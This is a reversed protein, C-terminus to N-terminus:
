NGHGNERHKPELRTTQVLDDNYKEFFKDFAKQGVKDIIADFLPSLFHNRFQHVGGVNGIILALILGEDESMSMLLGPKKVRVLEEYETKEVKM